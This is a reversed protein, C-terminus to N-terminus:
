KGEFRDIVLSNVGAPHARSGISGDESEDAARAKSNLIGNNRSEFRVDPSAQLAHLLRTTEARQFAQPGIAGLSRNLLLSNM